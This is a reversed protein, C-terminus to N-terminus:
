FRYNMGFMIANRVNGIGTTNSITRSFDYDLTLAANRFIDYSLTVGTRWSHDRRPVGIFAHYDYGARWSFAWSKDIQYRMNLEASTKRAPNGNPNARSPTSSDTFSQDLSARFTLDRTPYWFLRGGFVPSFTDKIAPQDYFQKQVGSYIEGRVLGIRDTGIGATVRYGRSRYDDDSYDRINGTTEAFAYFAPTLWYGARLTVTNVLSDRYSQSVRGSASHLAQYTTKVTELSAGLFANGFSYKATLGALFQNSKLPTTLSTIAGTLPDLASSDAYSEKHDYQLKAKIVFDRTVEWMQELGARLNVANGKTLGPFLRADVDAYVLTKHIGADRLAVFGPNIKVGFGDTQNRAAWTLNDDYTAGIFVKPFFIVDGLLIGRYDQGPKKYPDPPSRPKRARADFVDDGVTPPPDLYQARLPTTGAM